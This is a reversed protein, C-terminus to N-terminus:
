AVIKNNIWLLSRAMASAVTHQGTVTSVWIDELSIQPPALHLLVSVPKEGLEVM